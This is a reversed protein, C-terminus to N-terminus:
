DNASAQNLFICLDTQRKGMEPGPISIDSKEYVLFFHNQVAKLMPYLTEFQKKVELADERGHTLFLIREPNLTILRESEIRDWRKDTPHIVEFGCGEVLNVLFADKQALYFQQMRADLRDIILLIKPPHDKAFLLANKELDRRLEDIASQAENERHLFEGLDRLTQEIDDNTEMSSMLTRIGLGRLKDIYQADSPHVMVLAPHMATITELSGANSVRPLGENRPDKDFPSVAILRADKFAHVAEAHSPTLAIIGDPAQKPSCGFLLFTMILTLIKKM